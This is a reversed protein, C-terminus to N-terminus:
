TKAGPLKLESGSGSGSGFESKRGEFFRGYDGAGRVLELEEELREFLTGTNPLPDLGEQRGYSLAEQYERLHEEVVDKAVGLQKMVVCELEEVTHNKLSITILRNNMAKSHERENTSTIPNQTAILTFGPKKPTQSLLENLLREDTVTNFKKIFVVDGNHYAQLLQQRAQTPNDLAITIPNINKNNLISTVIRDMELGPAGELLFGNIGQGQPYQGKIKLQRVDLFALLPIAAKQRTATWVLPNNKDPITLAETLTQKFPKKHTKWLEDAKLQHRLTQSKKKDANLSVLESYIAYQLLFDNPFLKLQPNCTMAAMRMCIMVANRPTINLGATLAQQYYSNILECAKEKDTFVTLFPDLIDRLEPAKFELYDPFRRFLDAQKRGGYGHPNGAFVVKQGESLEYKKGNIWIVPEGRALNDFMQYDQTSINAEDIFLISNGTRHKAWQEIEKLGKYVKIPNGTKEGYEPLVDNLFYSKGSGSESILFVLSKKALYNMFAEPTTAQHITPSASSSAIPQSQRLPKGAALHLATELESVWAEQQDIAQPLGQFHSHCPKIKLREYCDMLRSRPKPALTEFDNVPDYNLVRPDIGTFPAADDSVLTLEGSIKIQEGNILLTPNDTFISQLKQVMENSFQGKLVIREGNRIAKLLDTEEGTFEGARTSRLRIFLSEFRLDRSIPYIIDTKLNEVAFDLDNSLILSTQHTSHLPATFRNLSRLSEPLSVQPMTELIPNIGLEAAKKRLNYWQLETLNNTVTLVITKNRHRQLLGDQMSIGTADIHTTSFFSDYTAANLILKIQEDPPKSSGPVSDPFIIQPKTFHLQFGPPLQHWEGNFEFRGCHELERKFARFAENEMPPNQITLAMKGSIMANILAGPVAVAQKGEIVIRGLLEKKWDRPMTILVDDDSIPKAPLPETDPNKLAPAKSRTALSSRFEHDTKKFSTNDMVVVLKLNDPLKQGHLQRVKSDLLSNLSAHKPRADSWNIFWTFAEDPNNEAQRIFKALPSPRRSYLGNAVHNRTLSIDDLASTFLCHQGADHDRLVAQHLAENSARDQTIVLQTQQTQANTLLESALSPADTAQLPNPNWTQYRNGPAPPPIRQPRFVPKVPEPRLYDYILNEDIPEEQVIVEPGGLDITEISGNEKKALVFAHVKNDIYHAKIGLETALAVFLQTRHRCVGARQILSHNLIQYTKGKMNESSEKEFSCYQALAALIVDKSYRTLAKFASNHALKGNANFRLQSILSFLTDDKAYVTIPDFRPLGSEIIFQLLVPKNVPQKVSFYHYGTEEDQYFEVLNDPLSSAVACLKDQTCTAPFQYWRNAELNNMEVPALRHRNDYHQFATKIDQLPLLEVLVPKLQRADPQRAVFTGSPADWRYASLHYQWTEIKRAGPHGKFLNQARYSMGASHKFNGDPQISNNKPQAYSSDSQVSSGPIAQASDAYNNPLLADRKFAIHPFTAKIFNWDENNLDSSLLSVEQLRPSANIISLLQECNINTNSISLKILQQLHRPKLLLPNPDTFTTFKITLTTLNPAALIFMTLASSEAKLLISLSTLQPLCGPQLQYDNAQIKWSRFDLTLAKLNPAGHLLNCIFSMTIINYANIILTTLKPLQTIAQQDLLLNGTFGNIEIRTLNPAFQIINNFQNETIRAGVAIFATLENLTRQKPNLLESGLQECMSLDLFSLAPNTELLMAISIADQASNVAEFHKLQTTHRPYTLVGCNNLKLSVLNPAAALFKTLAEDSINLRSLDLERLHPLQGPKLDLQDFKVQITCALNLVTLNPEAALIAALQETSLSSKFANFYNLKGRSGQLPEMTSLRSRLNCERVSLWRLEPSLNLLRHLGMATVTTGDLCCKTLTKLKSPHTKSQEYLEALLANIKNERSSADLHTLSDTTNIVSLFATAQSDSATLALHTIKTQPREPHQNPELEHLEEDNAFSVNKVNINYINPTALLFNTLQKTTQKVGSLNLRQLNELYSDPLDLVAKNIKCRELNLSVLGPNAMLLNSLLHGSLRCNKITLRTLNSNSIAIPMNQAFVTETITLERIGPHNILAILRQGGQKVTNLNIQDLNPFRELIQDIEEPNEVPEIFTLSRVKAALIPSNKLMLQTTSGYILALTDEPNINNELHQIDAASMEPPLIAHTHTDPKHFPKSYNLRNALDQLVPTTIFSLNDMRLGNNKALRYADETTMPVFQELQQRLRNSDQIAQLGDAGTFYVPQGLRILQSLFHLINDRSTEDLHEFLWGTLLLAKRNTIPVEDRTIWCAEEQEMVAGVDLEGTFDTTLRDEIIMEEHIFGLEKSLDDSENLNLPNFSNPINNMANDRAM